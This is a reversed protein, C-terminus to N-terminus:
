RFRRVAARVGTLGALCDVSLLRTKRGPTLAPALSRGAPDGFCHVKKGALQNASLYM